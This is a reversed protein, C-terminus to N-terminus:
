MVAQVCRLIGYEYEGGLADYIPKLRGKDSDEQSEMMTVIENFAADSLGTVERLDLLGAEIADALHTYVTNSNVDRQKAIDGIAVGQEYLVLTANVTASLRNDLLESLPFKVIEAVFQQGYRQLKQEGVGSVRSFDNLTQPRIKIMDQLSADSFVVYPPVGMETALETRIKRLAQWLPEDQPRVLSKQKKASKQKEAQIQKRLELKQEGRLVTRCKETLVLAGHREMDINIYGLAILQRFVSRWEVASLDTGIGFTSLQDHGNRQIREDSKGSLIDIIYNVGFRQDTRYICSLAKQASETGDWKEPPTQCNDCQGCAHDLTEDFYALLSQRRCTIVECLGLMSELKHHEVQKHKEDANSDQM